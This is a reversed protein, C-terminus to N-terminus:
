HTPYNLERQRQRYIYWFAVGFLILGLFTMWLTDGTGFKELRKDTIQNYILYEVIIGGLNNLFHAVVPLWISGSWIFLYGFCAGLVMRPLFGSVEMHVASFIAAALWIAAHKNMKEYFLQQLGGRFFFEECIAPSVAVVVVNFLLAGTSHVDLFQRVLDLNRAEMDKLWRELWSLPTPLSWGSFWESTANMFPQVVVMLVFVSLLLMWPIRKDAHVFVKSKVGNMRALLVVPVFFTVITIILQSVKLFIIDPHIAAVNEGKSLAQLLLVVSALLSALITFGVASGILVFLKKGMQPVTHNEVSFM